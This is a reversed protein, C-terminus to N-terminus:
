DRSSAQQAIFKQLQGAAQRRVKNKLFGTWGLLYGAPGLAMCTWRYFDFRDTHRYIKGDKFEFSAAIRNHCKRGTLRFTYIAQWNASGTTDDAEIDSFELELDKGREVLMRWMAGIREGELNPFAPDGFIAEPHYCAAMTQHDREAFASYFRHLLEANPHM